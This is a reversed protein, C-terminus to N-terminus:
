TDNATSQQQGGKPITITVSFGDRVIGFGRAELEDCFGDLRASWDAAAALFAAAQGDDDSTSM